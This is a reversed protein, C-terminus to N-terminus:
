MPWPHAADFWTLMDAGISPRSSFTVIPEDSRVDITLAGIAHPACLYGDDVDVVAVGGCLDCTYGTPQPTELGEM